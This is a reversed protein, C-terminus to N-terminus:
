RPNEAAVELRVIVNGGLRQDQVYLVQVTTGSQIPGGHSRTNNFGGTLSFDSYSFCVGQVCFHEEAHGGVPMPVFDTVVGSVKQVPERCVRPRAPVRSVSYTSSPLLRYYTLAYAAALLAIGLVLQWERLRRRALFLALIASILAVALVAAPLAHVETVTSTVAPLPQTCDFVLRYNV